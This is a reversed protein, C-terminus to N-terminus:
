TSEGVEPWTEQVARDTVFFAHAARLLLDERMPPATLQIGVPTRDRDFGARISCAPFGVLNQPVTYPVVFERFDPRQRRSDGEEMEIKAPGTACVPTLLLTARTFLEAFRQRIEERKCVAAAYDTFTVKAAAELRRKVDDGYLDLWKPYLGAGRHAIAAEALQIISFTPYIEEPCPFRVNVIRAGVSALVRLARALVTAIDARLPCLGNLDDCSAITIDRLDTVDSAQLSTSLSSRDRGPHGLAEFFLAADMPTRAMVGTHDLSPSLPLVGITSLRGYTPKLGLTGCLASPIRVSGGTDTGLALPVLRSALAVASGGSSGGSICDLAWPNRSTGMARNISTVGWAFEHTQTKGVLIAGARRAAAVVHADNQPVHHVFHRSGYSTRVEATDFIDKAAFPIGLLSGDTKRDRYKREAIKAETRARDICLATFAHVVPDIHTIRDAVADVVERPSFARTRYGDLLGPVDLDTLRQM